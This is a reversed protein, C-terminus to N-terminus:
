IWQCKRNTEKSEGECVSLVAKHFNDVRGRDVACSGSVVGGVINILIEGPNGCVSKLREYGLELDDTSITGGAVSFAESVSKCKDECDPVFVTAGDRVSPTDGAEKLAEAHSGNVSVPFIVRGNFHRCRVIEKDPIFALTNEGVKYSNGRAGEDRSNSVFQSGGEMKVKVGIFDLIDIQEQTFKEEM